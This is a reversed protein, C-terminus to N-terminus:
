PKIGFKIKAADKFYLSHQNSYKLFTIAPKMERKRCSKKKKPAKIRIKCVSVTRLQM